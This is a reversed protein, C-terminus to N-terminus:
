GKLGSKTVSKVIYKQTFIYLIVIPIIILVSFAMLINYKTGAETSFAAAGVSLTRMERSNTVILPWVYSNWCNIFKLISVSFLISSSCPVLITILYRLDGCGNIKATKYYSDPIGIFHQYILFISFASTCWPLILAKYSDIWGLKSLTIYNPIILIESPIMMSALLIIILVKKTRFDSNALIYAALTSTILDGLTVLVSVIISNTLYRTFPVSKVAIKFNEWQFSSPIWKPPMKLVENAPKLATLIMWIFPMSVWVLGALLIIYSIISTLKLRNRKM